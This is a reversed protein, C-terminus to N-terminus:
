ALKLLYEPCWDLHAGAEDQPCLQGTVNAGPQMGLSAYFINGIIRARSLLEVRGAIHLNGQVQGDIIVHSAQVEGCIHGYRSLVLYGLEAREARVDGRVQGDIRLGGRFVLNGQIRCGRAILTDIGHLANGEVM